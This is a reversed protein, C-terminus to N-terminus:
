PMETLGCSSFRPPSLRARPSPSPCPRHRDRPRAYALSICLSLIRVKTLEKGLRRHAFNAGMTHTFSSLFPLRHQHPQSPETSPFFVGAVYTLAPYQPHSPTNGIRLTSPLSCGRRPAKTGKPPTKTSIRFSAPLLAPRVRWDRVSNDCALSCRRIAVLIIPM